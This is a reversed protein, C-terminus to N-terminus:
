EESALLTSRIDRLTMFMKLPQLRLAAFGFRRYFAARRETLNVDGDDFVDLLATSIGIERSALVIRKLCDAFLLHGLGQGQTRHDVGIMSIYAAPLGRGPPIRKAMHEPLAAGDISHSNIAYYGAVIRERDRVAVFVRTLNDRQHKKATLKLFNDLASVGCSFAARDHTSPDFPEIVFRPEQLEEIAM